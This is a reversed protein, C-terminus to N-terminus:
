NGLGKFFLALVSHVANRRLHPYARDAVRGCSTAANSRPWGMALNSEWRPCRTQHGKKEKRASSLWHFAATLDIFALGLNEILTRLRAREDGIELVVGGREVRGLLGHQVALADEVVADAFIQHRLEGLDARRRM